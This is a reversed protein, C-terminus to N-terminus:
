AFYRNREANFNQLVEADSLLKNHYMRFSGLKFSANLNASQTNYGGFQINGGGNLTNDLATTLTVSNVQVGNRYARITGSNTNQITICLNFWQNLNSNTIGFSVSGVTATNQKLLGTLSGTSASDGFIDVWGNSFGPASLSGSKDSFVSGKQLSYSLFNFKIWFSYAFHIGSSYIPLLKKSQCGSCQNGPFVGLCGNADDSVYVPRPGGDGAGFCLSTSKEQTVDIDSNGEGSIEYITFGTPSLPYSELNSMDYLAILGDMVHGTYTTLFGNANIWSLAQSATSFTQPTGYRISVGQALKIFEEDTFNPARFFTVSANVGVVPTPQTNGSVPGAIVHGLSEDPGNWWVLNSPTFGTVPVGRIITGNQTTGNITSGTNYSFPRSKPMNIIFIM